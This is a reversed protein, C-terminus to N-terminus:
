LAVKGLLRVHSRLDKQFCTVLADPAVWYRGSAPTQPRIGDLEYLPM